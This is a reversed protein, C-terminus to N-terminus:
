CPYQLVKVWKCVGTVRNCYFTVDRTDVLIKEEIVGMTRVTTSLKRYPQWENYTKPGDRISRLKRVDKRFQSGRFNRQVFMASQLEQRKLWLADYNDEFRNWYL